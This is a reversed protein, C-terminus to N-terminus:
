KIHEIVVKGKKDNKLWKIIARIMDSEMNRQELRSNRSCYAQIQEEDFPVKADKLYGILYNEKEINTLPQMQCEIAFRSRLADDLMDIRNTTGIICVNRHANKIRDLEQMIVGTTGQMMRSIVDADKTRKMAFFDIDDLLFICEKDEIFRFIKKITKNVAEQDGLINAFNIVILEKKLKNAIFKAFTTKGTGPLGYLLVSNLYDTKLLSLEYIIDKEYISRVDKFVEKMQASLRYRNHNFKTCDFKEIYDKLDDPIEIRKM